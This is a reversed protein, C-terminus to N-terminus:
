TEWVPAHPPDIIRHGEHLSSIRDMEQVSLEFDFVDFNERRRAPTASKPITAVSRQQLLWRLTVQATTKGHNAGIEVLTPKDSVRGRALPAYATLIIDNKALAAITRQQNLFPHYEVQNTWIPYTGVVATLLSPTFNCVGIVRILGEEKLELMAALTDENPMSRNPWHMYLIDVYDTRLKKLSERTVEAVRSGPTELDLKTSLVIEGRPVNSSRVAAGVDEENRYRQATDIYRYGIALADSVAAQCEEALLRNTGFGLAPM